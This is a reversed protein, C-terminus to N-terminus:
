FFAAFGIGNRPDGSLVTEILLTGPKVDNKELSFLM